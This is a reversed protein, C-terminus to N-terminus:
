INITRESCYPITGHATFTRGIIPQNESLRFMYKNKPIIIIVNLRCRISSIEFKEGYTWEIRVGGYLSHQKWNGIFIGLIESTEDCRETECLKIDGKTSGVVFKSDYSQIWNKLLLSLCSKSQSKLLNSIFLVKGTYSHCTRWKEFQHQWIM